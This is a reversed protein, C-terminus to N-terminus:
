GVVEGKTSAGGSVIEHRKLDNKYHSLFLYREEEEEGEGEGEEEEEEEKGKGSIGRRRM